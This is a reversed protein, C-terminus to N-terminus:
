QCTEAMGNALSQWLTPLSKGLRHCLRALLIAFSPLIIPQFM